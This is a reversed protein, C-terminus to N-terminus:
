GKFAADLASNADNTATDLDKAGTLYATM